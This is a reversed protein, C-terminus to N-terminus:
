VVNFGGFYPPVKGLCAWEQGRGAHRCPRRVLGVLVHIELRTLSLKVNFQCTVESLEM